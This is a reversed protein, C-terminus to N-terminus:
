RARAQAAGSGGFPAEVAISYTNSGTNNYSTSSTIVKFGAAMALAHTGWTITNSNITSTGATNPTYGLYVFPGDANANGDPFSGTLPTVSSAPTPAELNATCWEEYNATPTGAFGIQGCELTAAYAGFPMWTPVWYVSDLTLGTVQSGYASGNKFFDVTGADFDVEVRIVDGSGWTGLTNQVSTGDVYIEGGNDSRALVGKTSAGGTPADQADEARIIGLMAGNTLTSGPTIECVLKGAKAGVTGRIQSYLGGANGTAVRNNTSFTCPYSAHIDRPNWVCYNGLGNEADDAPSDNTANASSMSTATWDSGSGSNAGLNASNAFALYHEGAVGATNIPIWGGTTADTKGFSTYATTGSKLHVDTVAGYFGGFLSANTLDTTTVAGHSVGNIYIGNNSIHVHMWGTPDKFVASSSTGEAEVTDDANFHVEGAAAGLMPLESGNSGKKVWASFTWPATISYTLDFSDASGDLWVSGAPVYGTSTLGDGTFAISSPLWFM